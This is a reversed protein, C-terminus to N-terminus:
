RQNGFIVLVPQDKSCKTFKIFYNWYIEFNDKMMWGSHHAVVLLCPPAGKTMEDTVWVWPFVLYTPIVFGIASVACCM